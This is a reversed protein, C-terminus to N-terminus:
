IWDYPCRRAYIRFIGGSGVDRLWDSTINLNTRAGWAVVGTGVANSEVKRKTVMLVQPSLLRPAHATASREPRSLQRSYPSTTSSLPVRLCGWRRQMLTKLLSMLAISMFMLLHFPMVLTWEPQLNEKCRPSSHLSLFRQSATPTFRARIFSFLAVVDSILTEVHM